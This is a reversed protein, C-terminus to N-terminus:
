GDVTECREEGERALGGIDLVRTSSRSYNGQGIEIRGDKVWEAVNSQRDEFFGSM